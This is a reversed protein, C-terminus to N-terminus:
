KTKGKKVPPHCNSCVGNIKEKSGCAYCGDRTKIPSYSRVDLYTHWKNAPCKKLQFVSVAQPKLHCLMNKVHTCFVGGLCETDGKDEVVYPNGDDDLDLKIGGDTM